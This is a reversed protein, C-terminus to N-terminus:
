ASRTAPEIGAWARARAIHTGPVELAIREFDLLTVARQPSKRALVIARDLQDLTACRGTPCLEVLREHVWLSEAARGATHNLSEAEAGGAAPVLNAVQELAAQLTLLDSGAQSLLADNLLDDAQRFTWDSGAAVNGVTGTTQDYAALIPANKPLVRGQEGDGFTNIGTTSDLHFHADTRSSADLDPQLLWPELGENSQSWVQVQGNSVLPEPLEVIQDPLRDGRGVLMLSATLSGPLAPQAPLYNLVLCEPGDVEPGAALAIIQDGEDLELALKQRVGREPSQGIPPMVGPAITFTSYAATAQEASVSNPAIQRLRPATDPPGAVLRCRLYFQDVAVAGIAGQEM